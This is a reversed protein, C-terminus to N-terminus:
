EGYNRGVEDRWDGFTCMSDHTELGDHYGAIYGLQWVVAVVVVVLVLVITAIIFGTGM